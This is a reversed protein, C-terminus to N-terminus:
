RTDHKQAKISIIFIDKKETFAINQIIDMAINKINSGEPTQIM